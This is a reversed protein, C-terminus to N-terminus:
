PATRHASVLPGDHRRPTLGFGLRAAEAVVRRALEPLSARVPASCGIGIGLEGPVVGHLVLHEPGQTSGAIEPLPM